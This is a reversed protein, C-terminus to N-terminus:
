MECNCMSGLDSMYTANTRKHTKTNLRYLVFTPVFKTLHSNSYFNEVVKILFEFLRLFRCNEYGSKLFHFYEAVHSM